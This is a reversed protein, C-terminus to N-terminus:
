EIRMEASKRQISTSRGLLARCSRVIERVCPTTAARYITAVARRRWGRSRWACERSIWLMRLAEARQDAAAYAAALSAATKAHETRLVSQLHPTTARSSIRELLRFRAKYVRVRDASYHEDHSRVLVTPEEVVGVESLLSLRLWLDYEEFYLQNEDFGGVEDILSREAMVSPAAVGAQLTLLQEFINGRYLARHQELEGPLIEGCKGIRTVATYSWRRDTRARHSAIQVELKKPLWVDDSDLFAIYQGEAARLAANRVASPIGTHTLYILKVRPLDALTELYAATECASGDDAIILQWDSFTQAFVSDVAPRLYHLRNFTPLIVSVVPPRM